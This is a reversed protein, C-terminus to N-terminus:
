NNSGGQGGYKGIYPTSSPDIDIEYIRFPKDKKKYGFAVKKADFSLDFRSFLGGDLEPVLTTIKGDASVPSLVCLSGGETNAKSDQYTNFTFPTRKVFLLKDFKLAPHALMAERRLAALADEIKQQDEPTGSEVATQKKELEAVQKLYQPGNPYEAGLTKISDEIALRLAGVNVAGSPLFASRHTVPVSELDRVKHPPQKWGAPFAASSDIRLALLNPLPGSRAFKLTHKGKTISMRRPTGRENLAEWKQVAGSSNWTFKVPIEFPASGFTIDYCIKGMSKGDVFVETPRAEAAAYSVHLTYEATAPFDIDYEVVGAETQEPDSGILPGADAYQDPSAYIRVNGRDFTWAPINM